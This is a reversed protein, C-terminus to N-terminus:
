AQSKYTWYLAWGSYGFTNKDICKQIKNNNKKQRTM